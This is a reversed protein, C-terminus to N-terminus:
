GNAIQTDILKSIEEVRHEWTNIEAFTKMEKLDSCHYNGSIISGVINLFDDTNKYLSVYKSFKRSESYDTAIIPKGSYIYEYLKVPNVSEILNNVVFPMILAKSSNMVSLIEDHNITGCFHLRPHKPRYTSSIPGYLCFNINQYKDLAKLITNFDFWESVTGIYVFPNEITSLFSNKVGSYNTINGSIANNIVYYNKSISYRKLLRQALSEASFLLLTSEKILKKEEKIIIERLKPYKYVYPFESMDDMCDYVLVKGKIKSAILMYLEPDTIWVVDYRKINRSIDVFFIKNLMRFMNLPLFRLREFPFFFFGRISLNKSKSEVNMKRWIRLSKRYYVDVINECALGEALFQPRQKINGWPTHTIYLIRAM